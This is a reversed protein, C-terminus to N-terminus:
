RTNYFFNTKKVKNIIKIFHVFNLALILTKKLNKDTTIILM